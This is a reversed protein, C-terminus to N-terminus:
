SASQKFTAHCTLGPRPPPPAYVSEYTGEIATGAVHGAYVGTVYPRPNFSCRFSGDAQTQVKCLKGIRVESGVIRVRISKPLDGCRLPQGAPISMPITYDGDAYAPVSLVGLLMLAARAVMKSSMIGGLTVSPGM